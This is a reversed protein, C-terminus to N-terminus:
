QSGYIEKVREIVHDIMTEKNKQYKERFEQDQNKADKLLIEKEKQLEDTRKMEFEHLFTTVKEQSDEQQKKLSASKKQEYAILEERTKQRMSEVKEEAERIRDLAELVM